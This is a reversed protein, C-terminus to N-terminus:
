KADVREGIFPKDLCPFLTGRKLATDTDYVDTWEQVPVYCMALALKGINDAPCSGAGTSMRATESNSKNM